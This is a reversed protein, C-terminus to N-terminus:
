FLYVVVDKAWLWYVGLGVVIFIAWGVLGNVMKPALQQSLTKKGNIMPQILDIKKIRYIMIAVLHLSIAVLILDFNLSHIETLQSSFESSAYMALPGESIIDDTAFLGTTLQIAILAFFALVMYSGAPNHGIDEKSSFSTAKSQHMSRLHQIVSSPSHFLSSLRATESGIIGWILRTVLLTLLLYAISFHWDMLGETGTYWLGVLCLVQLWHYGRVFGDWVTVKTNM